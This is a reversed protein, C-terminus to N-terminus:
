IGATMKRIIHYHDEFFMAPHIEALPHWSAYAADSGGRVKPLKPKPELNILYANTIVRGRASRNPADFVEFKEISGRLVREAVKLRTEQDLERLMAQELTEGPEIFGGSLALLGKGPAAKRKILLVHGSQIVVADVTVFTAPYPLNAYPKKYNEIYRHERVLWNYEGGVVEAHEGNKFDRLFDMTGSPVVAPLVLDMLQSDEHDTFYLERIWTADLLRQEDYGPVSESGWQPFLNLYYSSQDKSHGILGIKTEGTDILKDSWLDREIEQAKINDYVGTQIEEIWQTDNYLHDRIPHIILRHFDQNFTKSRRYTTLIMERREDYTFPNRYSRAEYSSGILIIVNYALELARDIVKKHGNHFPQFRGIFVLYDYPKSM